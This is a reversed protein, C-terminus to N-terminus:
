RLTSPLNPVEEIWHFRDRLLRLAEEQMKSKVVSTDISHYSLREYITFLFPILRSITVSDSEAWTSLKVIEEAVDIFMELRKISEKSPFCNKLDWSVLPDELLLEIEPAIELFRKIMDFTSNWRTAVPLKPDLPKSQLSRLKHLLIDRNHIALVLSHIDKIDEAVESCEAFSQLVLQCTHSVCPISEGLNRAACLFNAGNDTVIASISADESLREQVRSQIISSIMPATHSCPASIYDLVDVFKKLRGDLLQLIYHFVIVIVKGYPGDSNWSDSVIAASSAHALREQITQLVIQHLAPLHATTLSDSGLISLDAAVCFDKWRPSDFASLPISRDIAWLLLSSEKMTKVFKSEVLHFFREIGPQVEVDPNWTALLTEVTTKTDRGSNIAHELAAAATPHWKRIHAWLNGSPGSVFCNHKKTPSRREPKLLCRFKNKSKSVPEFLLWIASSEERERNQRDSRQQVPQIHSPSSTPSSTPSSFDTETQSHVISHSQSSTSMQDTEFQTPLHSQSPKPVKTQSQRPSAEDRVFTKRSTTRRSQPPSVEDKGSHKRASPPQSDSHSVDIRKSSKSMRPAPTTPRSRPPSVEDKGSRKRLSLAAHESESLIVEDKGSHRKSSTRM